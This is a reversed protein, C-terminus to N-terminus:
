LRRLANLGGLTLKFDLFRFFISNQVDVLLQTKQKGVQLLVLLQPEARRMGRVLVLHRLRRSDLGGGRGVQGDVRGVVEDVLNDHMRRDHPVTLEKVRESGHRATLLLEHVLPEGLHVLLLLDVDALDLPGVILQLLSGGLHEDVLTQSSLSGVLEELLDGEHLVTVVELELSLLHIM